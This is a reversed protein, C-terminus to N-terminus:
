AGKCILCKPYSAEFSFPKKEAVFEDVARKLGEWTSGDAVYDDGVIAGGPRILPWWADLDSRVSRYDHAGDIHLLDIQINRGRLVEAANVSDIPLPVVLDHLGEAIMNQMFCHYLKPYGAEFRLSENYARDFWHESSGLWTDIAIIVGELNLQRMKRGMTIVSRGKWVGVEVVTAPRVMDVARILLEHDTNWGQMDGAYLDRPFTTFPDQGYWLKALIDSRLGM